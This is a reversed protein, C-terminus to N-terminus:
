AGVLFADLYACQEARDEPREDPDFGLVVSTIPMDEVYGEVSGQINEGTNASSGLGLWAMSELLGLRPQKRPWNNLLSGVSAIGLSTQIRSVWCM